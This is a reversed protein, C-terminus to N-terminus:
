KLDIVQAELISTIYYYLYYVRIVSAFVIKKWNNVRKRAETTAASSVTRNFYHQTNLPSYIHKM